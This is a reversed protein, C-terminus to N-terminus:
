KGRNKEAARLMYNCNKRYHKKTNVVDYKHTQRWAEFAEDNENDIEILLLPRHATITAELGALVQMEMGEVDIKIFDPTEDAFLDDLMGLLIQSNRELNLTEFDGLYGKPQNGCGLQYYTEMQTLLAPWVKAMSQFCANAKDRDGFQFYEVCSTLHARGYAEKVDDMGPDDNNPEAGFHKDLVAFRNDM